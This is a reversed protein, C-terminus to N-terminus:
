APAAARRRSAAAHAEALVASTHEGLRPPEGTLARAGPVPARVDGREDVIGRALLHEDRLADAPTRVLTAPVDAAALRRALDEGDFRAVRAAILRALAPGLLTRAALPLGRLSRLGLVECASEWFRREDVIGLALTRGDRCRYLGYQPMAYLKRRDLAEILPAVARRLLRGGPLAAMPRELDATLDVGGSWVSTWSLLADSM